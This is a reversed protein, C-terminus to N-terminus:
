EQVANSKQGVFVIVPQTEELRAEEQWQKINGIQRASKLAFIQRRDALSRLHCENWGQSDVTHSLKCNKCRMREVDFTNKLFTRELKFCNM